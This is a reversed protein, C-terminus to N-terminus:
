ALESVRSCASVGWCWWGCVHVHVILGWVSGVVVVLKRKGPPMEKILSRALLFFDIDEKM